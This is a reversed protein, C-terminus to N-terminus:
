SPQHDIQPIYGEQRWRLPKQQFAHALGEEQLPISEKVVFTHLIENISIWSQGPKKWASAKERALNVEHAQDQMGANTFINSMLVYAAAQRPQLHVAHGYAYKGLEVNGHIQCAGLLGLWMAIDPQVQMTSLLEEVKDFDGLRGLLDIMCGVHEIRPSVGYVGSMTKFLNVGKQILGAQCCAFLLSVFTTQNPSIGALPMEEFKKFAIPHDGSQICGSILANWSVVDPDCIGNLIAQADLANGCIAYAFILQTALGRCVSSNRRWLINHHLQRCPALGRDTSCCQLMWGNISNDIYSDQILMQTYLQFAKDRQGEKVYASLMASHAIADPQLLRKFSYEAEEIRGCKGYLTVLESGICLDHNYGREWADHHLARGVELAVQTFPIEEKIKDSEEDAYKCCAKLVNAVTHADPSVGEKQMQQYLQLAMKTRGEEIYAQVMVTWAVVNRECLNALVTEAEIYKGCKCFLHVLTNGLFAELILGKRRLEAHFAQGIGFAAGQLPRHYNVSIEDRTALICCAQLATLLALKDPSICSEVMHRYARLAKEAEGQEIYVSQLATWLVVDHNSLACFVYEAESLCGCGGYMRVLSNGVFSQGEFGRLTADRHLVRGIELPEVNGPDGELVVTEKNEALIYCGGLCTSITWENPTVDHKQMQTYLILAKGVFKHEILVSIISTWSVVDHQPTACFAEEADAISGCKSYMSIVSSAFGDSHLGVKWACAHLSKGVQLNPVNGCAKLMSVYTYENPLVCEELMNAYVQLAVVGDGSGTYSSIIATWSFVTRVPLSHFLVLASELDGCKCFTFVLYENLTIITPPTHHMAMHTHVHKTHYLSSTECCLKLLSSYTVPPLLSEYQHMLDIARDLQGNRCLATIADGYAIDGGDEEEKEEHHRDQVGSPHLRCRSNSLARRANYQGTLM